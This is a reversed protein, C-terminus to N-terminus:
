SSDPHVQLGSADPLKGVIDIQMAEAPLGVETMMEQLAPTRLSKPIPKIQNCTLCNKIYNVLHETFGPYYFQKRYEIITKSVGNHTKLKSNHVRYLIEARLHKPVVTQYHSIKGVHDYYERCLVGKRILLRHFQQAYKEEEATRYMKFPVQNVHRWEIVKQIIPDKAQEAVWDIETSSETLDFTDLPNDETLANINNAINFSYCKTMVYVGDEDGEEFGEDKENQMDFGEYYGEPWYEWEDEEIEEQIDELDTKKKRKGDKTMANLPPLQASVNLEIEQMQMPEKIKLEFKQSPDLHMRSLFDAAANAKGPIHGIIFPFAMVRDLFNWLSTPITKAQFFYALAKNDTLVLIKKKVAGWLLHAFTDFAYYIALFEKAHTSLKLQAANFVKSGFSVPALIKDAGQSEKCYDEIMLVYGAGYHSADAVIVYQLDAVPLRLYTDTAKLLDNKLLKFNTRHTQEITFEVGKKLLKYFPILTLSLDPLFAKFFQLFGILRKVQKPNKPMKMKELFTEVKEKNPTIGQKTITNGLFNIKGLGFECKKITLRLGSKDICKFIEELNEVMEEATHSASGVDDVYQFCRGAAICPDLYKRMFSSFSTVSRSLGQALRQYAYTRSEFNFALLQVSELDAM